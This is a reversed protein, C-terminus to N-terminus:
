MNEKYIIPHPWVEHFGHTKPHGGACVGQTCNLWLSEIATRKQAEPPSLFM